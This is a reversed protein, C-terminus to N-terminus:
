TFQLAPALHTRRLVRSVFHRRFIREAVIVLGFLIGLLLLSAITIGSKPIVPYELIRQVTETIEKLLGKMHNRAGNQRFGLGSAIISKFRVFFLRVRFTPDRWLDFLHEFFASLIEIAHM